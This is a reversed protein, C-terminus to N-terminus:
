KNNASKSVDGVRSGGVRPTVCDSAAREAARCKYKCMQVEWKFHM